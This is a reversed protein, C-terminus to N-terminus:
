LPVPQEKRSKGLSWVGKAACKSWSPSGSDRRHVRTMQNGVKGHATSCSKMLFPCGVSNVSLSVATPVDVRSVPPISIYRQNWSLLSSVALSVAKVQALWNLFWNLYRMGYWLWEWRSFLGPCSCSSRSPVPCGFNAGLFHRGSGYLGGSRVLQQNGLGGCVLFEFFPNQAM